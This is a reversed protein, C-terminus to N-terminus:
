AGVYNYTFSHTLTRNYKHTHTHTHTQTRVNRHAHTRHAICELAKLVKGSYPSNELNTANNFLLGGVAPWYQSSLIFVSLKDVISHGFCKM